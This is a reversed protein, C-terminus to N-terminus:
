NKEPGIIHGYPGKKPPDIKMNPYITGTGDAKIKHVDGDQQIIVGYKTEGLFKFEVREGVKYRKRRRAM